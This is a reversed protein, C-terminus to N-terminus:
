ATLAEATPLPARAMARVYADPDGRAMQARLQPERDGDRLLGLLTLRVGLDPDDLLRDLITRNPLDDRRRWAMLAARRVNGDAHVLLASVEPPLAIEDFRAVAELAGAVVAAEPSFLANALLEAPWRPRKGMIATLAVCALVAAARLRDASAHKAFSSRNFPHEVVERPEDWRSSGFQGEAIPRLQKSFSAAVAPDLGAALNFVANVASARSAHPEEDDLGFALLKEAVQERLQVDDSVRAFLGWPELRLNGIFHGEANHGIRRNLLSRLQEDLAKRATVDLIKSGPRNIEASAGVELADLRGDGAAALVRGRATEHDHLRGAVWWAPVRAHQSDLFADTLANTHDGRGANTLLLLATAAPEALLLNGSRLGETLLTLAEEASTAPWEFILAAIAGRAAFVFDRDRSSEIPRRAETLIWDALDAVLTGDLRRGAAALAALSPQRTWIAGDPQLATRLEVASTRVALREADRVRGGQIAADLAAAHEGAHEYLEVLLHTAYLEGRLHGARRHEILALSFRNLADFGQGIVRANLGQRELREAIADPTQEHGRLAVAVARWDDRRSSWPDGILGEAARASFYQEAVEDEAGVVRGWCLAAEAFAEQATELRERRVLSVARRATLTARLAPRGSSGKPGSWEDLHEWIADADEVRDLLGLTEARLAHLRALTESSEGDLPHLAESQALATEHARDILLLEILRELWLERDEDSVLSDEPGGLGATLTDIAAQLDEPWELCARWSKAIWWREHSLWGRLTEIYFSIPQSSQEMCRRVVAILTTSALELDGGEAASRAAEGRLRDSAAELNGADDGHHHELEASLELLRLAAKQPERARTALAESYRREGDALLALPGRQLVAAWDVPAQYSARALAQLAAENGPVLTQDFPVGIKWNEGTSLVTEDSVVQWYALKKNPDYLVVLVPLSHGLWYKVHRDSCRHVARASNQESVQSAGSKIQMALMRGDVIGGVATEVLLDIGQDPDSPERPYWGLEVLLSRVAEVGKRATLDTAGSVLPVGADACLIAPVTDALVKTNGV